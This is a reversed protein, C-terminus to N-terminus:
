GEAGPERHDAEGRMIRELRLEYSEEHQCVWGRSACLCARKAEPSQPAVREVFASPLEGPLPAEVEDRDGPPLSRDDIM